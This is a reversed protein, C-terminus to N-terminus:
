SLSSVLRFSTQLRFLFLRMDREIGRAREDTLERQLNNGVYKVSADMSDVRLPQPRVIEASIQGKSNAGSNPFFLMVTCITVSSVMPTRPTRPRTSQRSLQRQSLTSPLNLALPRGPPPLRFLRAMRRSRPNRDCSDPQPRHVRGHERQHPRIIEPRLPRFGSSCKRRTILQLNLPESSPWHHSYIRFNHKNITIVKKTIIVTQNPLFNWPAAVKFVSDSAATDRPM